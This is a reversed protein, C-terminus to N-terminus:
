EVLEKFAFNFLRLTGPAVYHSEGSFFADRSGRKGRSQVEVIGIATLAQRGIEELSLAVIEARMSVLADILRAALEEVGVPGPVAPRSRGSGVVGSSKRNVIESQRATRLEAVLKGLFGCARMFECSNFFRVLCNAIRIM